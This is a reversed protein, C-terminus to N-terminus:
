RRERYIKMFEGESSHISTMDLSDWSRTDKENRKKQCGDRGGFFSFMCVMVRFYLLAVVYCCLLM